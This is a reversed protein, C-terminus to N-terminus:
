RRTASSNSPTASVKSRMFSFREEKCLSDTGYCKPFAAHAIAIKAKVAEDGLPEFSRLLEGTAPDIEWVTNMEPYSTAFVRQGVAVLADARSM